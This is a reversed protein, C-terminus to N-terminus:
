GMKAIDAADVETIGDTAFRLRIADIVQNGENKLDLLMSMQNDSFPASKDLATTVDKVDETFSITSNTGTLQIFFAQGPEIFKTATSSTPTTTGNGSSFQDITVFGGRTNIMPDWVWLQNSDTNSNAALVESVDIRSQYPNAIFAFTNSGATASPFTPTISGVKLTGTSILKTPTPTSENSSLDIGRDGRVMLRYPVGAELDRNKSDAVAQWGSDFYFMSPNGSITYDIGTTSNHQGVTGVEGTIHTGIGTENAGGNQWNDFLSGGDVPSAVMRFARQAPYYKETIVTGSTKTYTGDISGLYADGNTADSKFLLDGDHTFNGNSAIHQGAAITTNGKFELNASNTTELNANIDIDNGFLEIGADGTVDANITINKDNTANGITLGTSSATLNTIPYTVDASFTTGRPIYKFAGAATLTRSTTLGGLANDTYLSIDGGNTTTLDANLTITGGYATIPGAISTASGFTINATNGEKGLRLRSFGSSVTLNNPPWSQAESFSASYPEYVLGGGATLTATGSGDINDATLTINANQGASEINLADELNISHRATITVNGTFGTVPTVGNVSQSDSREGVYFGQQSAVFFDFKNNETNNTTINIDGANSLIQTRGNNIRNHLGINGKSTGTITVGGGIAATSQILINGSGSTNGLDIGYVNTTSTGTIVIAAMQPSASTIAINPTNSGLNIGKLGSSKGEIVIVGTGADILLQDSAIIGEKTGGAGRILIDGGGSLLSAANALEIGQDSSSGSYSYGDPIGDSGTGGNGGDDLGGALVIKGGSTSVTNSGALTIGHNGTGSTVNNRNAWLIVDGANTTITKSSALTISGSGKLLIDEGSATSTLNQNVAISGGYVSIPGAITQASNITINATNGDKGVTLGSVDSSLALNSTLDLTSSFSTSTPNPQVTVTGTTNITSSANFNVVDGTLHVNSSSATVSTSAEKGIITVSSLQIGKAGGDFTIDGSAALANGGFVVGHYSSNPANGTLDIAGNGSVIIDGSGQFGARAGTDSSSGNIAVGNAAKLTFKGGYAGLEIGHWEASSGTISISGNGADILGDEDWQVGQYNGSTSVGSLSVDGGGSYIGIDTSQNETGLHIGSINSGTGNSAGTPVVMGSALTRTASGGGLVISGGGTLQNTSGNASNIGANNNIDIGGSTGDASNAWLVIDSNNSQITKSAALTIKGTGKLLIDGGAANSTLNQNVAINGGYVAIPGAINTATAITVDATNGMKGLRLGTVTSELNINQYTFASGFSASLPEISLEGTTNFRTTTIDFTAKDAQILVDSSSSIVESGDAGFLIANATSPRLYLGNYNGTLGAPQRDRISITGTESLLQMSNGDLGLGRSNSSASGGTMDLTISGNETIISANGPQMGWATNTTNPHNTADATLSVQGTGSTRIEADSFAITRTIAGDVGGAGFSATLSINGGNANLKTKNGSSGDLVILTEGTGETVYGNATYSIDAGSTTADIGDNQIIRPGTITIGTGSTATSTLNADVNIQGGYVSIPGAISTASAITMVQTNSTKGLTLGSVAADLSLNSIPWSFGSSFSTNSPEVTVSGSSVIDMGDAGIDIADGTIFVDSTSSTISGGQGINIESPGTTQGNKVAAAVVVGNAHGDLTIRGSNAYINTLGHYYSGSVISRGSGQADGSILVDGGGSSVINLTGSIGIANGTGSGHAEITIADAPSSSLINVTSAVSIDHNGFMIGNHKGSNVSNQAEIQIAGSGADINVTNGYTILGAAGTSADAAIKIEGGFSEISSRELYVGAEFDSGGDSPTFFTGPVAYGQGVSLGNWTGGDVGGGLWVSGGTVSTSGTTISSAKRLSISGNAVQNDSNAWLIVDGGSTTISENATLSIDGSAKVLIDGNAGGSTTNLSNDLTINDGYVTVPGAVDISNTVTIDSTNSFTVGTMGTYEGITFGGLSNFTNITLADFTGSVDINPSANNHSWTVSGGYAGGDPVLYLHGTSTLTSAGTLVDAALIIDGTGTNVSSSTHFNIGQTGSGDGPAAWMLVDGGSTSLTVGDFDIANQNTSGNDNVSPGDGVTLGNWTTSGQTTASGGMWFHGGNTTITASSSATAGARNHNNYDSWLVINLAGSTSEIDANIQARGYGETDTGGARLTLTADGGATKDIANAVNILSGELLVSTGANLYGEIVSTNVDATGTSSITVPNSGSATWNNGSTGTEGSNSITLTQSFSFVSWVM